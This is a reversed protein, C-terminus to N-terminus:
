KSSSLVLNGADSAPSTLASFAANMASEWTGHPTFASPPSGLLRGGNSPAPGRLVPRSPKGDDPEPGKFAEKPSVRHHYLFGKATFGTTASQISCSATRPM